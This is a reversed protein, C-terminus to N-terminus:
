SKLWSDFEPSARFDTMLDQIYRQPLVMRRSLGEGFAVFNYKTYFDESGEYPELMLCYGGTHEIVLAARLIADLLAKEGM